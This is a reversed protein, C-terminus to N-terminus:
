GIITKKRCIIKEMFYNIFYILISLINFCLLSDVRSEIKSSYDYVNVSSYIKTSKILRNFIFIIRNIVIALFSTQVYNENYIDLTIDVKPISIIKKVNISKVKLLNLVSVNGKVISFLYFPKIIYYIKYDNIFLKVNIVFPFLLVLYLIVIFTFM